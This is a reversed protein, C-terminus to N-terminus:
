QEQPAFRLVVLEPKNFIRPVPIPNGIGRGVILRGDYMGSTYKPFLGQGPAFVGRGFIRWQGGHAHGSLTLDVPLPRIHAPYYEPHHCLLLKFADAEAFRRLFALDPAPTEGTSTQERGHGSTLGGIAIGRFVTSENDLVTAGTERALFVIDGSFKREHNGLSVFTPRKQASLRLFDLGLRYNDDDHIFDGGVLVADPAENEIADIVPMNSAGHLDSVFAFTVTRPATLNYRTIVM